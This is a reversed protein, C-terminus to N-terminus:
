KKTIKIKKAGYEKYIEDEFKQALIKAEFEYGKFIENLNEKNKLAAGIEKFSKKNKIPEKAYYNVDGVFIIEDKKVKFALATKSNSVKKKEYFKNSSEFSDLKYFGPELMLIQYSNATKIEICKKDKCWFSAPYVSNIKIIAIGQENGLFRNIFRNSNPFKPSIQHNLWSCNSLTLLLIILIKKM